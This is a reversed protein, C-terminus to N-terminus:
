QIVVKVPKEQVKRVKRLIEADSILVFLHINREVAKLIFAYITVSKPTIYVSCEYPHCEIEDSINSILPLMYM